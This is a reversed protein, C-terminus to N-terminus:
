VNFQERIENPVIVPNRDDIVVKTIFVPAAGCFNCSETAGYENFYYETAVLCQECKGYSVKPM